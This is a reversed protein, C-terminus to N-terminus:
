LKWINAVTNYIYPPTIQYHIEATCYSIRGALVFIDTGAHIYKIKSIASLIFYVSISTYIFSINYAVTYKM